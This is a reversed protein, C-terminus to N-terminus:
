AGFDDGVPLLVSPETLGLFLLPNVYTDRGGPERVGWHVCPVSDCHEVAPDVRALVQGAEVRTGVELGDAVPEFSSRRGDDHTVTLVQRDVVTGSFTVTGAAPSRVEGGPEVALDVGRHGSAWRVAPKEFHRVVEVRGAVPAVWRPLGAAGAPFLGAVVLLVVGLVPLLIGAGLRTWRMCVERYMVWGVGRTVVVAVM